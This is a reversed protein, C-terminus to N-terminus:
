ERQAQAERPWGVNKLLYDLRQIIGAAYRRAGKRNPHGFSAYKCVLVKLQDNFDRPCVAAAAACDKSRVSYMEDNPRWSRRGMTIVKFGKALLSRGTSNFGTTWLLSDPASFGSRPGFGPADVYWVRADEGKNLLEQNVASVSQLINKSSEWEWLRSLEILHRFKKRDNTLVSIKSKAEESQFSRIMLRSLLNRASKETVIPYYGTVVVWARPFTRTVEELLERTPQGCVDSVHKVLKEKPMEPDIVNRFNADNICGDVLVIDVQSGDAYAGSAKGVQTLIAPLSINVEGGAAPCSDPAPKITAGSHAERRVKVQRGTRRCLWDQVLYSIKHEETLGQGWMISDGLVLMDLVEGAGV